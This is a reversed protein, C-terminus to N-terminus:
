IRIGSRTIEALQTETKAIESPNVSYTSEGYSDKVAFRNGFTKGMSPITEVRRSSSLDENVHTNM